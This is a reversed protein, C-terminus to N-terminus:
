GGLYRAVAFDESDGGAVVIRGNQQLALGRAVDGGDFSTLRKGDGAFTPDLSGDAKFRAIAFDLGTVNQSSAGAVLIRGNGQIAVDYAQDAATGFAAVRKGDGSFTHDLSGDAHLRAIAFDDTAGGSTGVVVIRGGHVAVGLGLDIGPSFTITRRGDGSFSKDLSGNPNFRAVAFDTGTAPQDSRGAVVIKGNPQIAVDQGSDSASGNGFSTVRTGDGAFGPDPSGDARFREVALETGDAGQVSQGAVVVKGDSQVAVARGADSAAGNGFDSVAKGDSSFSPDLGGGPMLRAVAFDLGGGGGPVAYADGAVVIRGNPAIAVAHGEDVVPSFVVTRKGDGSFGHDLGGATGYRAIAFAPSSMPGASGAVVIRGNAQIAVDYGQDTSSSFTTTRKGDGAFSTDLGGAAAFATAAVLALVPVSLAIGLVIWWARRRLAM